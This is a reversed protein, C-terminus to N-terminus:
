RLKHSKARAEGMKRRANAVANSQLTRLAGQVDSAVGQCEQLVATGHSSLIQRDKLLFELQEPVKETEPFPTQSQLHTKFLEELKKREPTALAWVARHIFEKMKPLAYHVRSKAKNLQALDSNMAHVKEDGTLAKNAAAEMQMRLSEMRQRLTDITVELGLIANWRAVLVQLRELSAEPEGSETPAEAQDPQKMSVHITLHSDDQSPPLLPQKLEPNSGDMGSHSVEGLHWSEVEEIAIGVARLLNETTLRQGIGPLQFSTQPIRFTLAFPEGEPKFWVEAIKEGKFTLAAWQKSPPQESFSM